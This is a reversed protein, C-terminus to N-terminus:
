QPGSAVAAKRPALARVLSRAVLAVLLLLALLLLARAQQQWVM